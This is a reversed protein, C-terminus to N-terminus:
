NNESMENSVITLREQGLFLYAWMMYSVGQHEDSVGRKWTIFVVRWYQSLLKVNIVVQWLSSDIILIKYAFKSQSAETVM